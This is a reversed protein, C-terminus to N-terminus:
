RSRPSSRLARVTLQVGPLPADSRRNQPSAAPIRVPGFVAPPRRPESGTRAEASLSTALDTM